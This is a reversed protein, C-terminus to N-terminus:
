NLEHSLLLECLETYTGGKGSNVEQKVEQKEPAIM